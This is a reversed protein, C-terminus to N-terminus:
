LQEEFKERFLYDNDIAHLNLMPEKLMEKVKVNNDILTNLVNLRRQYALSNFVQGVLLITQEFLSAMEQHGGLAEDDLAIM